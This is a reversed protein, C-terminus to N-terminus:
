DSGGADEKGAKGESNPPREQNPNLRSNPESATRARRSEWSTPSEPKLETGHSKLIRRPYRGQLGATLGQKCLERSNM